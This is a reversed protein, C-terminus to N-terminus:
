NLCINIAVVEEVNMEHKQLFSNGENSGLVLKLFWLYTDTVRLVINEQLELLHSLLRLSEYIM